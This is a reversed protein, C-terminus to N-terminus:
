KHNEQITFPYQNHLQPFVQCADGGRGVGGAGAAGGVGRGGQGGEDQDQLNM